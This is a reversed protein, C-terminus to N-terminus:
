KLKIRGAIDALENISVLDNKSSLVLINYWVGTEKRFYGVPTEVIIPICKV